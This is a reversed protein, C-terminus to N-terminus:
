RARGWRGTSARDAAITARLTTLEARQRAVWDTVRVARCSAGTSALEAIAVARDALPTDADLLEDVIQV